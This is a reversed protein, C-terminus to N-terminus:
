KDVPFEDVPAVFQIGANNVLIDVGGFEANLRGLMGEIADAKSMDAGDYRVTVGYDSALKARTAEIETTDGFGNLVVNTGRAAFATAIGLGIGSTSGTVLATKGQLMISEQLHTMFPRPRFM